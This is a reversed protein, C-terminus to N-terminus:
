SLCQVDTFYFTTLNDKYMNMQSVVSKRSKQLGQSPRQRPKSNWGFDEFDGFDESESEASQVAPQEQDVNLCAKCPFSM